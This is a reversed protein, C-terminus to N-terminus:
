TREESPLFTRRAAGAIRHLSVDPQAALPIKGAADRASSVTRSIDVRWDLEGSEDGRDHPREQRGAAPMAHVSAAPRRFLGYIHGARATDALQRHIRAM